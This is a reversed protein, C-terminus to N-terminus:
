IDLDHTDRRRRRKRKRQRDRVRHKDLDATAGKRKPSHQSRHVYPDTHHKDHPCAMGDFVFGAPYGQDRKKKKRKADL